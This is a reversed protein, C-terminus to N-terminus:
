YGKKNKAIAREVAKPSGAKEEGIEVAKNIVANVEAYLSIRLRRWPIRSGLNHSHAIKFGPVHRKAFWLAVEWFSNAGLQTRLAALRQIRKEHAFYWTRYELPLHGYLLELFSSPPIVIPERLENRWRSHSNMKREKAKMDALSRKLQAQDVVPDTPSLEMLQWGGAITRTASVVTELTGLKRRASTGLAAQLLRRIAESRSMRKPQQEMWREIAWISESTLRVPITERYHRGAPRGRKNM